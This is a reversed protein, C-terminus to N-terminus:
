RRSLRKARWLFYFSEERVANSAGRIAGTKSVVDGILKTLGVAKVVGALSAPVVGSYLGFSLAAGWGILSRVTGRLAKRRAENVRRQLKALGPEILDGYIARADAASFNSAPIGKASSLADNLAKRYAIFAEPEAKRLRLLSGADVDNMFPIISTLHTALLRNRRLVDSVGSLDALIEIEAPADTVYSAGFATTMLGYRLSRLIGISYDDCLRMRRAVDQPVAAKGLDSVERRFQPLKTLSRPLRDIDFSSGGHALVTEPAKLHVTYGTDAKSVAIKALDRFNRKFNILARDLEARAEEGFVAEAVCHYCLDSDVPFPVILGEEILPALELLVQLDNFFAIRSEITDTVYCGHEHRPLYESFPNHVYLREAIGAAYRGLRQARALRCNLEVCADSGGGLSISASQVFPSEAAVFELEAPKAIFEGLEVLQSFSLSILREVSVAGDRDILGM